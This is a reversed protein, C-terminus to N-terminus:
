LKKYYSCLIDNRFVPHNIGTPALNPSKLKKTVKNATNAYKPKSLKIIVKKSCCKSKLWHCDEINKPDVKMDLKDFLELVTAKLHNVETDSSLIPIEVCEGRSYQENSWLTLWLM